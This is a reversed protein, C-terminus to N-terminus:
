RNSEGSWVNEDRGRGVVKRWLTGNIPAGDVAYSRKLRYSSQGPPHAADDIAIADRDAVCDDCHDVL